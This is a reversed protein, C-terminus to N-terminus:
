PPTPVCLDLCSMDRPCYTYGQTATCNGSGGGCGACTGGCSGYCTDGACTAFQCTDAGFEASGAPEHCLHPYSHAHALVTGTGAAGDTEFSEVRLGDLELRIKM